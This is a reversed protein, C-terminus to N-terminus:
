SHTGHPSDDAADGAEVNATSRREAATEEATDMTEDGVEGGGGGLDNEQEYQSAESNM